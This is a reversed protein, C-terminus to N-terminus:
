WSRNGQLIRCQGRSNGSYSLPLCVAKFPFRESVEFHKHCPADDSPVGVFPPIIQDFFGGADDYSM